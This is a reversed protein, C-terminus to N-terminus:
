VGRKRTLLYKPWFCVIKKWHKKKVNTDSSAPEVCWECFDQAPSLSHGAFPNVNRTCYGTRAMRSRLRGPREGAAWIEPCIRSTPTCVGSSQCNQVSCCLDLRGSCFLAGGGPCLREAAPILRPVAHPHRLRHRLQRAASCQTTGRGLWSWVVSSGRSVRTSIDFVFHTGLRL